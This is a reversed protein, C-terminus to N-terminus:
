DVLDYAEGSSLNLNRMHGNLTYYSIMNKAFASHYLHLFSNGNGFKIRAMLDPALSKIEFAKPFLVRDNVVLRESISATLFDGNEEFFLRIDGACFDALQLGPRDESPASRVVQVRDEVRLHKNDPWNTVLAGSHRFFIQNIPVRPLVDRIRGLISADKSASVPDFLIKGTGNIGTVYSTM